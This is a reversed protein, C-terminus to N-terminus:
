KSKKERFCANTTALSGPRRSEDVYLRLKREGVERVVWSAVEVSQPCKKWDMKRMEYWGGKRM